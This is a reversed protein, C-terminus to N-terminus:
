EAKLKKKRGAVFLWLFCSIKKLTVYWATTVDQKAERNYTTQERIQCFMKYVRNSIEMWDKNNFRIKFLACVTVFRVIIIASYYLIM